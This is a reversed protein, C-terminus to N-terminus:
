CDASVVKSQQEIRSAANKRSREEAKVEAWAEDMM